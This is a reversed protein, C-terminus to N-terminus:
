VLDQYEESTIVMDHFHVTDVWPELREAMALPPDKMHFIVCEFPVGLAHHSKALEVIADGCEEKLPELGAITLEKTLPFTDWQVYRFEPLDLFPALYPRLDSVNLTLEELPGVSNFLEGVENAIRRRPDAALGVPRDRISLRKINGLSPHHRIAKTADYFVQAHKEGLDIDTEGEDEDGLDRVIMRYGLELTAPGPSLFSLSCSLGSPTTRIRLAVGDTPRAMHHPPIMNWSVSNPFIELPMADDAYQEHVLSTRRAAPCSVHTAIKYGPEDETMTFAEVNPLVVIRAPPVGGLSIEAKINIRVTRLMPTAKLFNFLKLAPFEEDPLTTSLEFTTLNPFTFHNLPQPGDLYLIFKRLNVAGSFLPLSPPDTPELDLMPFKVVQIKLTQLLPLPGSITESFKQIYPWDDFVFDLTRFRQAHPSILSLIDACDLRSTRVDLASGKSRELITKVSRGNKKSGLLDLRSWLM